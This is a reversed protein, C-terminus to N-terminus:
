RAKALFAALREGNPSGYGTCPDWGPGAEFWRGVGDIKNNGTTIDNFAGAAAARALNKNLWGVPRGIQEGVCALLAAWLPASASTGDAFFPKGALVIAYGGNHDAHAAVDPVLRGNFATASGKQTWIGSRKFKPRLSSQFAPRTFCGSMGGGTAVQLGDVTSNWATESAFKGRSMALTTGGCALAFPSSAPFNVRAKTDAKHLGPPRNRAGFDGSSCCITIGKSAARKLAANILTIASAGWDSESTGDSISIINAKGAIAADIAAVLGEAVQPYFYVDIKAGPALSAILQVDQTAELTEVFRSFTGDAGFQEKIKAFSARPKSLATMVTRLAKKDLPANEASLPPQLPARINTLAHSTVKPLSVGVKRCQAKLDDAYFGGGMELIAIRQGKGTTKPFSYHQAIVLPSVTASARAAM